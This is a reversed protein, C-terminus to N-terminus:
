SPVEDYGLSEPQRDINRFFMLLGLSTAFLARSGGVAWSVPALSIYMWRLGMWQCNQTQRMIKDVKTGDKKVPFMFGAHTMLRVAQIFQYASFLMTLAISALQITLLRQDFKNSTSRVIDWMKGTILTLLSLVTTALFQMSTIANRMTQVAYLWGETTRVHRSWDERTDAQYQRWTKNTTKTSHGNENRFEKRFLNVHYAALIVISSLILAIQVQPSITSTATTIATLDPTSAQLKTPNTQSRQNLYYPVAHAKTFILISSKSIKSPSLLQSVQPTPKTSIHSTPVFAFVHSISNMQTLLSLQFAQFCSLM